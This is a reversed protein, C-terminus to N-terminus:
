PTHFIEIWVKKHHRSTICYLPQNSMLWGLYLDDRNFGDWGIGDWGMGDWGMGDWGMGDWGM